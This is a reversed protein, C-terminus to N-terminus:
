RTQYRVREAETLERPAARRATPLLDLSWIRATNDTSVALLQRPAGSDSGFEVRLMKARPAASYLHVLEGSAAHWVRATGDSSATAVYRGDASWAGHNIRGEHGRLVLQEKGDPASWLRATQDSSTTLIADGAPSFAAFTIDGQHGALERALEGTEANWLTVIERKFDYNTRYGLIFRGRPDYAAHDFSDVGNKGLTCVIEGSAADFINAAVNGPRADTLVRKGDPSWLAFFGGGFKDDAVLGRLHKGNEANWVDVRPYLTGGGSSGYPQGDRLLLRQDNGDAFTLLRGGDPSFRASRVSRRFGELAYLLMGSRANWVRVPTFLPSAPPEKVAVDRPNLDHHVTVLREGRPDLDIDTLHRLRQADISNPTKDGGRDFEVKNKTGLNWLALYDSDFQAYRDESGATLLREARAFRAFGLKPEQIELVHESKATLRWTRVTGDLSVSIIKEAGPLFEAATVPEDHGKLVTLTSVAPSPIESTTQGAPKLVVEKVHVSRGEAFAALPRDGHATAALLRPPGQYEDLYRRRRAKWSSSWKSGEGEPRQWVALTPSDELAVLQSGAHSFVHFGAVGRQPANALLEGSMADYLSAPSHFASIVHRGDPSFAATLGQGWGESGKLTAVLEGSEGNWLRVLSGRWTPGSGGWGCTTMSVPKDAPLPPDLVLKDFDIRGSFGRQRLDTQHRRSEGADVTLIRTGDANFQAFTFSARYMQPEDFVKEEPSRIVFLEKGSAVDWVRASADLSCALLRRGDPSFSVSTIHDEPGRFVRLEKGSEVSWLRVVRDTYAHWRGDDYKCVIPNHVTAAFLKGDPSLDSLHFPMGPLEFMATVAGSALNYVYGGQQRRMDGTLESPDSFRMAGVVLREAGPTLRATFLGTRGRRAGEGAIPPAFLTREERCEALTNLLAQDHQISYNPAREAAAVALLLARGPNESLVASSQAALRLSDSQASERKAVALAEKTEKEAQVAQKRALQEKDALDVAEIRRKEAALEADTARNAENMAYVLGFTTGAIALTMLLLIAAAASVAGRNRRVFKRVKYFVSPPCAEVPEDRLYREIDAALASSTEYRRRRDKELTRMVIWDLDGRVLQGLGAPDISRHKAISTLREGLTSLRVSPRPPDEESIIRQMEAYGMERLREAEFPTTGTLLEYLLVGLSYIDSRTDVDLGSMEAQEPSMYQPTGVMQGFATFLTRETLRQNTAKAIGFDIVKPVPQGDHLTVLINSPKLDRHIIGKQHAHQVAGCVTKFLGLRERASLQNHDCYETLPVGKVLEMVFYPRGSSFSSRHPIFSSTGRSAGESEDKMRGGEDKVGVAGGDLVKAINPHDMMALAQREAEFRAIVASSDLGPRIIKLAVTRRIPERQEAMYVVGMGGEGIKQLLKYPGIRDGPFDAAPLDVTRGQDAVADLLGQPKGHASLLALVGAKMSENGVCARDLYAAREGPDEIEIAANFVSQEDHQAGAM